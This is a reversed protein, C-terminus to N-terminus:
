NDCGSLIVIITKKRRMKEWETPLLTFQAQPKHEFTLLLYAFQRTTVKQPMKFSSTQFTRSQLTSKFDDFIYAQTSDM